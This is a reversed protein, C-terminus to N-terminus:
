VVITVLKIIVQLLLLILLLLQHNDSICLGLENEKEVVAIKKEPYRLSMERACAMGIIGGGVVTVDYVNNNGGTSLLRSM